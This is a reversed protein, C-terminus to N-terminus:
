IPEVPAAGVVVYEPTTERTLTRRYRALRLTEEPDPPAPLTTLDATIRANVRGFGMPLSLMGAAGLAEQYAALATKLRPLRVPRVLPLYARSWTEIETLWWTDGVRRHVFRYYIAAQWAQPSCAFAEKGPLDLGFLIPLTAPTVQHRAALWQWLWLDSALAGPPTPPRDGRPTGARDPDNPHADDPWGLLKWPFDLDLLPRVSLRGTPRLAQAAPDPRFRALRQAPLQAGVADLFLLPAGDWLLARELEATRLLVAGPSASSNGAAPAADRILRSGGLLWLDEIGEARYLRHRRRWERATLNACQFELAVRRSRHGSEPLIALVDARQQTAPLYAEVVIEAEPLQRRLWHALLLKGARHEETEPETQPLQCVAGPLHAFHHARVTGAHLVLAGGCGPCTLARADSLQRLEDPADLGITVRRSGANAALLNQTASERM